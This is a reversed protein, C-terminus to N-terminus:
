YVGKEKRFLIVLPTKFLIYFDLWPNWHEIYFTDLRVEDEFDLDARGSIQAMGTIGPKVTHVKRHEPRYKEVEEPLHPRPGVLSMRGAFVLFFEPLEDISYTRIFRGVRTVRPDNKIKVMPTGKRIDQNALEKYRMFHTGPVMSRFKFYRFAKGNQGIRVSPMNKDIKAFFVPGRSDLKIAIATLLMIPSTLVILLLSGAIDFLRKYIAGWGDLPTKQVEIVPVGAYTHHVSRGVAAGFLDATFLFGLHESETLSILALRTEGSAESDALIVEDLKDERAMQTLRKSLAKDFSAFHGVVRFGFRAKKKFDEVLADATANKGIVVLRHTGIGLRLLSRQLGRVVLRAVSVFIVSLGWSALAIFRSEFLERSFFLIGFVLAMSASCALVVRSLESAIRTRHAAYLGSFAFVVIWILVLPTAIKLYQEYTLDFIVPRIATFAPHFRLFFAASAAALLSFFDLPVLLLTFALESRKM